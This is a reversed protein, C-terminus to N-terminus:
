KKTAMHERWRRRKAEDPTERKKHAASLVAVERQLADVAHALAVLLAKEEPTM